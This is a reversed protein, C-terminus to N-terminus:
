FEIPENIQITARMDTFNPIDDLIQQGHAAMAARFADADDFTLLGIMEYVPTGGSALDSGKMIRLDRLGQSSLLTRVMPMHKHVYYNLDFFTGSQKPYTVSTITM